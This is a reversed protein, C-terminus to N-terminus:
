PRVILKVMEGPDEVSTSPTLRFKLWMIDATFTWHQTGTYATYEIFRNDSAPNILFWRSSNLYADPNEELSGFIELIGTFNRTYTSFSHVSFIHNMVRAGPIRSTYFCNIRPGNVPVILDPTWDPALVTFSDVPTKFAQQTIEIEMAVNSDYDSFLPLERYYDAVGSIFEKTRILVMNYLGAHLPAIDGSDLELTILGKSPGLRCLKELVVTRNDPDIIRAYVEQNAAINYPVRDPGLARFVISNDLGKHAKIPNKSMPGTDKCLCLLDDIVTLQRVHDYMYVRNINIDM